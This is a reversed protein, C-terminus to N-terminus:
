SRHITLYLLHLFYRTLNVSLIIIRKASRATSNAGITLAKELQKVMRNLYNGGKRAPFIRLRDRKAINLAPRVVM